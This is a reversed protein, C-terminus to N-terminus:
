GGASSAVYAAVEQAEDGGLLNAPMQGSGAGGNEIASLIQEEAPALSDLDPGVAGSTGAAQLVHCSGCSQVFLDMGPGAAAQSQPEAPPKEDAAQGAPSEADKEGQSVGIEYAGFLLALVVAGAAAGILWAEASRTGESTTQEDTM